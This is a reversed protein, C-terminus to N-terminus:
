GKVMKELVRLGTDSFLVRTGPNLEPVPEGRLYTRGYKPSLDGDYRSGSDYRDAGRGRPGRWGRELRRAQRGDLIGALRQEYELLENSLEQDYLAKVQRHYRGAAREAEATPQGAALERRLERYRELAQGMKEQAEAQITKEADLAERVIPLVRRALSRSLGLDAVLWATRLDRGMDLPRQWDSAAATRRSGVPTSIGGRQALVDIVGNNLLYRRLKFRLKDPRKDEKEDAQHALAAALEKKELAFDADSMGRMRDLASELKARLEERVTQEKAESYVLRRKQMTYPVLRQLARGVADDRGSEPVQRLRTLVNEQFSTDGAAQGVREPNRFDRAPIFCPRFRDVIDRQSETLVACVGDALANIEEQRERAASRLQQGSQRLRQSRSSRAPGRGAKAGRATTDIVNALEREFDKQRRRVVQEHKRGYRADIEAAEKLIHVLQKSQKPSLYLGNVLYLAPIDRELQRFQRRATESSAAVGAASGDVSTALRIGV